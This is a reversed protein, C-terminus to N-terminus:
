QHMSPPPLPYAVPMVYPAHGHPLMIPTGVASIMHGAAVPHGVPPGYVPMGQMNTQSPHKMSPGIASTSTDKLHCLEEIHKEATTKEPVRDAILDWWRGEHEDGEVGEEKPPVPVTALADEFAKNDERSWGGAGGGAEIGQRESWRAATRAILSPPPPPPRVRVLRHRQRGYTDYHIAEADDLPRCKRGMLITRQWVAAEEEEVIVIKKVRKRGDDPVGRQRHGAKRTRRPHSRLRRRCTKLLASVADLLGGIAM